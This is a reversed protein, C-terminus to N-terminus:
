NENNAEHTMQVPAHDPFLSGWCKSLPTSVSKESLNHEFM